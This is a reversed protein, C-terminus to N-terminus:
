ADAEAGILVAELIRTALVAHSALPERDLVEAVPYRPVMLNNMIGAQNNRLLWKVEDCARDSWLAHEIIIQVDRRTWQGAVFLRLTEYAPRGLEYETAELVDGRIRFTLDRGDFDARIENM